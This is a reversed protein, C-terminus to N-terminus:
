LRYRHAVEGALVPVPSVPIPGSVHRVCLGTYALRTSGEDKDKLRDDCRYEYM